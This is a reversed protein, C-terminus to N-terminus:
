SDARRDRPRSGDDCVADDEPYTWAPRRCYMAEIEANRARAQLQAIHGRLERATAALGLRELTDFHVHLQRESLEGHDRTPDAARTRSASTEAMRGRVVGAAHLDQADCSLLAAVTLGAIGVAAAVLTWYPALLLGLGWLGACVAVVALRILITRM